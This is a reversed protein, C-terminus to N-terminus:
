IEGKMKAIIWEQGTSIHELEIELDTLKMQLKLYEAKRDSHETRDATVREDREVEYCQELATIDKRFQLHQEQMRGFFLFVSGGVAILTALNIAITILRQGRASFKHESAEM